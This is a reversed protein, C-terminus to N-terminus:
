SREAPLPQNGAVNHNANLTEPFLCVVVVVVFHKCFKAALSDTVKTEPQAVGL